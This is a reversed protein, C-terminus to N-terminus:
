AIGYVRAAVVLGAGIATIATYEGAVLANLQRTVHAHLVGAALFFVLLLALGGLYGDIPLFFLLWRTQAVALAAVSAFIVTELPDIEGERLLEIGLMACVLWAAAMSAPLGLHLLYPTALLAFAAFYAAASSVLRAYPYGRSGTRVSMVEAVAIVGCGAGAVLAWALVAYGSANHEILMPAAFAYLAPLFLYPTTDAGAGFPERYTARLAGDVGAIAVGAGVLLVWRPTPEILVFMLFTLTEVGTFVALFTNWPFPLTWRATAAEVNALTGAVFVPAPTKVGPVGAADRARQVFRAVRGPGPPAARPDETTM